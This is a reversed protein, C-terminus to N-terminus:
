CHMYFTCNLTSIQNANQLSNLFDFFLTILKHVVCKCIHERPASSYDRQPQPITGKPSPFLLYISKERKFGLYIGTSSSYQAFNKGFARLLYVCHKCLWNPEPIMIGAVECWLPVISTLVSCNCGAKAGCDGVRLPILNM